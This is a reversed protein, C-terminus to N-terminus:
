GILFIRDTSIDNVVLSAFVRSRSIRDARNNVVVTIWVGPEREPDQRDFGLRTWNGLAGFRENASFGNVFQLRRGDIATAIIGAGPREHGARSIRATHGKM